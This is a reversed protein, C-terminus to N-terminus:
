NRVGIRMMVKLNLFDCGNGPTLTIEGYYLKGDVDYFDARVFDFNKAIEAGIKVMLDFTQPKVIDNGKGHVGWTFPM